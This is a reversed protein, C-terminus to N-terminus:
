GPAIFGVTDGLFEEDVRKKGLNLLFNKIVTKPNDL